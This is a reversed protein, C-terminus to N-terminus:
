QVCQTLGEETAGKLRQLCWKSLASPTDEEASGLLSGCSDGEDGSCGGEDRRASILGRGVEEGAKGLGARAWTLTAGAHGRVRVSASGFVGWQVQLSAFPSRGTM